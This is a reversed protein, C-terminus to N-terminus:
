WLRRLVILKNNKITIKWSEKKNKKHRSGPPLPITGYRRGLYKRGFKQNENPTTYNSNVTQTKITKMAHLM